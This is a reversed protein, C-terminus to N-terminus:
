LKEAFRALLDAQSCPRAFLYGQVRTIGLSLLTDAQHQTEVGEAVIDIGTNRALGAVAQVIALDYPDNPLGAVFSRDLKIVDIPLRKLYALSSYGVGFDDLAVSIGLDRLRQLTRAAVDFDAILATETLEVCLRDPPLGADAVIQAVDTVLGAQEFQRASINLRLKPAVTSTTPWACADICAQGMVWRGMPLILGSAEAADIFECAPRVQGDEDVWRLLAEAAYWHGDVLDVEPQYYVRLRDDAIAERLRRELRLREVLGRHHEADFVECRNHRGNRARQSAIEANRLLNDASPAALDRSFAIGAAVVTAVGADALESEVLQICREALNLAETERLHRHPLLAFADGRVRALTTTEGFEDRLREAARVLVDHGADGVHAGADLHLHIAALGTDDDHMPRLASHVVELLHDRNPLNTHPDHLELYRVRGELQRRQDIEFAMAVYDGISAAFAQDEPTWARSTGVHEHCVVGKVEGGLRIPADLMSGIGHERMYRDLEGGPMAREPGATDIVRVEGLAVNYDDDVHLVSEWGPPNHRGGGRQYHHLCTVTGRDRDHVWINVREIDLTEAATECIVAFAGQLTCDRQWVRRALSLLAHNYRRAWVGRDQGDGLRQSAPM